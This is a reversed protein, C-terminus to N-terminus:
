GVARPWGRGRAGRASRRLILPLLYAMTAIRARNNAVQRAPFGAKASDGHIAMPMALGSHVQRKRPASTERPVCIQRAVLSPMRSASHTMSCFTVEQFAPEERQGTACSRSNERALPALAHHTSISRSKRRGRRSFTARKPRILPLAFRMICLAFQSIHDQILCNAQKAYGEDPAERWRRGCPSFPLPSHNLYFADHELAGTLRPGAAM